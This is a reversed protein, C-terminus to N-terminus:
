KLKKITKNIIFKSGQETKKWGFFESKLKTKNHTGCHQIYTGLFVVPYTYTAKEDKCDASLTLPNTSNEKALRALCVCDHSV